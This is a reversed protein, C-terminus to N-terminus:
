RSGGADHSLHTLREDVVAVNGHEDEAYYEVAHLWVQQEATAQDMPVRLHGIRPETLTAWDDTAHTVTGWLLRAYGTGRRRAGAPACLVDDTVVRASGSGASRNWWRLERDPDFARLEFVAQLDLPSGDPLLPRGSPDLRFWRAANPSYAFGVAATATAAFATLAQEATCEDTM